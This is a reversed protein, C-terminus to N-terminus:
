KLSERVDKHVKCKHKATRVKRIAGKAQRFSLTKEARDSEGTKKDDAAM